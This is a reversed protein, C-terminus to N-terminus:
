EFERVAAAAVTSIRGILSNVSGDGQPHVRNSLFIIFLQQQPDFWLATGTFGGHGCASPSLLDGRNSSYGTRKDWGLGRIGGGPIPQPSTMLQVTEPQLIHSDGLQGGNLMAQAYRALDDATSFLGAHGAVGDLAFARPDHVEGRMWHGNRQETPAFRVAPITTPRYMTERMGLPEFLHARTYENLAQGSVTAVLEGLVMFGVDSYIFRETPAALPQLNLLNEISKERGDAFDQMSNDAILGGQHTLLHRVTIAEKGHSAFAPLHKAVPDDLGIKGAEVLQMISTATAIPKTLSALDFVTDLTMPEPTPELQRQGFAQRYVIQGKFGVFVVAGPMKKDRLGEEVIEDIVALRKTSVGVSAPDFDVWHFEEASVLRADREFGFVLLAFGLAQPITFWRM